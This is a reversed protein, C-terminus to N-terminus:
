SSCSFPSLVKLGVKPILIPCYCFNFHSFDANVSVPCWINGHKVGCFPRINWYDVLCKDANLLQKLLEVHSAKEGAEM